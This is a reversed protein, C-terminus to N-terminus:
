LLNGANTEEETVDHTLDWWNETAAEPTWDGTALLHKVLRRAEAEEIRTANWARNGVWEAWGFVNFTEADLKPVRSERSRSPRTIRIEPCKDLDFFNRHELELEIEDSKELEIKCVHGSNDGYDDNMCLMLLYM